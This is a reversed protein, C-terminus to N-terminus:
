SSSSLRRKADKIYTDVDKQYLSMPMQGDINEGYSMIRAEGNENVIVKVVVTCFYLPTKYLVMSPISTTIETKDTVLM